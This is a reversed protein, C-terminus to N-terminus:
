LAKFNLPNGRERQDSAIVPLPDHPLRLVPPNVPSYLGM